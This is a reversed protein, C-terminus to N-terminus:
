KIKKFVIQESEKKVVFAFFDRLTSYQEIPFTAQNFKLHVRMQISEANQQILYEFFGQTENFNVRASKPIEDIRFGKPIEMSLLFTYDMKYSFEVPYVREIATFPNTTFSSGLVPNFYLIDSSKLDKFELDCHFILPHDPKDLSDFSENSVNLDNYDARITKFYDKPSSKKVQDRIDLSQDSGFITTLSGSFVDKEDNIFIANTTRVESVSDPSLSILDPHTEHIIRAGWNYCYSPLKGFAVNPQSADLTYTKGGAKAVCIVYNYEYTLPYDRSTVGNDRTSLLAPDATIKFHRLIAVLLLNLEAVNGSRKKFVEKLSTEIFKESYDTCHFNDRVFHYVARIEEEQNATGSVVTKMENDMWPNDQDLEFGFDESALFNHSKTIWTGMEMDKEHEEDQQFYDLEFSIKSVYNNITSLYPQKKLAPVNKKVWRNQFSTCSVNLFEDSEMAGKARRISFHQELQKTTKIDFNAEGSMKVLYHFVSPITVEYESWQCPYESQFSWSPPDSFNSSKTTVTLDFISGEKLAPMSFKTLDYNQSNKEEFISKAELKTEQIVGNELNFTSGKLITIKENIGHRDNYLLLRIDGADFGNKNLIKIRLFHTYVISFFGKGNGEFGTKGIDAIVIANAGTDSKHASIQFDAASIKGFKIDSGDQASVIQFLLIMLLIIWTGKQSIM